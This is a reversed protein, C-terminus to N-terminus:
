ESIPIPPSVYSCTLFLLQLVDSQRVRCSYTRQGLTDNYGISNSGLHNGHLLGHYRLEM